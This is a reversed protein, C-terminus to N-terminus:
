GDSKSGQSGGSAASGQGQGSPTPPLKAGPPMPISLNPNTVLTSRGLGGSAAVGKLNGGTGLNAM